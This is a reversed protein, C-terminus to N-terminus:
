KILKVNRAEPNVKVAEELTMFVCGAKKIKALATASASLGAITINKGVISGVGLVKGPVVIFDGDRAYRNIKSLNVAVRSRKPKMIEEAVRIWAPANHSRGTKRLLRALRRILVNTPGTPKM